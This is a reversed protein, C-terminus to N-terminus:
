EAKMKKGMASERPKRSMIVLGTVLAIAGVVGALLPVYNVSNDSLNEIVPAVPDAQSTPTPSSSEDAPATSVAILRDDGESAIVLSQGDPLWAIAEGLAQAPLAQKEELEGPPLGDYFHADFYDRLVFGSGNPNIAGDTVLGGVSGVKTAINIRTKSLNAPLQYMSGSALQKTVVWLQTSNPDALITEANHSRDEYTFRFRQARVSKKGLNKPERVRYIAVNDWSDLNDGIDGVWLVPRGQADVGAALGEFDRASVDRLTLEGVVNCDQLSLAYLRAADGSDNHVWMVNTHLMSPAMGSIETLRPDTIRCLVEGQVEARAVGGGIFQSLLCILVALLAGRRFTTVLAVLDSRCIRQLCPVGFGRHDCHPSIWTDHACGLGWRLLRFTHM